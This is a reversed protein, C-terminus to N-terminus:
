EQFGRRITAYLLSIEVYAARAGMEICAHRLTAALLHTKGTGVPGSLVFGREHPWRHAFRHALAKAQAVAEYAPTKFTEFSSSAHVAPLQVANFLSLRMQLRSLACPATVDYRKGGDEVHARALGTGGCAACDEIRRNPRAFALEGRREVTY